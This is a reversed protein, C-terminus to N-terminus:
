FASSCTYNHVLGFYGLEQPADTYFGAYVLVSLISTSTIIALFLRFRSRRSVVKVIRM